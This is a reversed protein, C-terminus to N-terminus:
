QHRAYYDNAIQNLQASPVAARCLPCTFSHGEEKQTDNWKFFHQNCIHHGCPLQILEHRSAECYTVSCQNKPLYRAKEEEVMARIKDEFSYSYYGNAASRIFDDYVYHYHSSSRELRELMTHVRSGITSIIAEKNPDNQLLRRAQEKSQDAIIQRIRKLAEPICKKICQSQSGVCKNNCATFSYQASEICKRKLSPDAQGFYNEILDYITKVEAQLFSGTLVISFVSVKLFYHKM